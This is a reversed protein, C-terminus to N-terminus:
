EQRQVSASLPIGVARALPFTSERRPISPRQTDVPQAESKSSLTSTGEIKAQMRRYSSVTRDLPPGGTLVEYAVIAFSYLDSSPSQRGGELEEPSLYLETGEMVHVPYHEPGDQKGRTFVSGSVRERVVILKVTGFDTLFVEAPTEGFLINEPKIDGHILGANHASDIASAVPRLFVLAEGLTVLDKKAM